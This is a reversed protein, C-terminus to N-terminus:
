RKSLLSTRNLNSQTLKLLKEMHMQRSGEFQSHSELIKRADDSAEKVRDNMKVDDFNANLGRRLSDLLLNCDNLVTQVGISGYRAHCTKWM